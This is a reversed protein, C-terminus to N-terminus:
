SVVSFGGTLSTVSSKFVSREKEDLSILSDALTQIKFKVNKYIQLFELHFSFHGETQLINSAPLFSSNAIQRPITTLQLLMYNYFFFSSKAHSIGNVVQAQINFM